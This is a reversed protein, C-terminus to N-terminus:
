LAPGGGLDRHDGPRAAGARLPAPADRHAHRLPPLLRLGGALEIFSESAGGGSLLAEDIGLEGLENSIVAVRLGDRQARELLARVLTTKGAGLFGSVVLAPVLPLAAL